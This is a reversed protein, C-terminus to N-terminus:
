AARTGLFYLWFVISMVHKKTKILLEVDAYVKHVLDFKRAVLVTDDRFGMLPDLYALLIKWANIELM